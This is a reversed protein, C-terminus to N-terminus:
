ALALQHVRSVHIRRPLGNQATARCRPRYWRRRRRTATNHGVRRRRCPWGAKLCCLGRRCSAGARRRRRAIRICRVRRTCSRIRIRAIPRVVVYRTWRRRASRGGVILHRPGINWRIRRCVTHRTWRGAIVAQCAAIGAGHVVVGRRIARRLSRRSRRRRLVRRHVPRRRVIRVVSRTSCCRLLRGRRM